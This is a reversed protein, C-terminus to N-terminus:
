HKNRKVAHILKKTRIQTKKELNERGSDERKGGEKEKERLSGRGRGKKETERLSM